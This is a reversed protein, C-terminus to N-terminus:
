ALGQSALADNFTAAAEAQEDWARGPQRQADRSQGGQSQGQAQADGRGRAEAGASAAGVQVSVEGSHRQVLDHRLPESIQRLQQRVEDNTASLQVQLAGGQQRIEIEIRGLQPPELHLRAQESRAAIQVQLRDGLAQLLPQQWARGEGPLALRGDGAAGAVGADAGAPAALGAVLDASWHPVAALGTVERSVSAATPLETTSAEAGTSRAATVAASEPNMGRLLSVLASVAGDGAAGADSESTEGAVAPSAASRAADARAEAALLGQSQRSLLAMLAAAAGNAPAAAADVAQGAVLDVPKSDVAASWTTVPPALDAGADFVGPAAVQPAAQAVLPVATAATQVAESIVTPMQLWPMALLAADAVAAAVPAGDDDEATRDDVETAPADASDQDNLCKAFAAAAQPRSGAETAAPAEHDVRSARSPSEAPATQAPQATPIMSTLSLSM